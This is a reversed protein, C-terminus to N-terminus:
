RDDAMEALDGFRAQDAAEEIDAALHRLANELQFEAAADAQEHGIGIQDGLQAVLRAKPLHRPRAQAHYPTERAVAQEGREALLRVPALRVADEEGGEALARHLAIEVQDQLHAVLQDGFPRPQFPLVDEDGIVHGPQREIRDRDGAEAVAEVAELFVLEVAEKLRQSARQAFRQVHDRAQRDLVPQRLIRLPLEVGVDGLHVRQHVADDGVPPRVGVAGVVQEVQHQRRNVRFGALAQVIEVDAILHQRKQDGAVLRGGAQEGERERQQQTVRVDERLGVGLHVPHQWALGAGVEAMEGLELHDLPDDLFRLPQPRGRGGEAEGRELILHDAALPPHALVPRDVDEARAQVAVGIDPGVRVLEIDIAPQGLRLPRPVRMGVLREAITRPGADSPLECQDLRLEGDRHDQLAERDTVRM